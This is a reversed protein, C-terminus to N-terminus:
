GSEQLFRCLVIRLDPGCLLTRLCCPLHWGLDGHQRVRHELKLLDVDAARPRKSSVGSDDNAGYRRSCRM